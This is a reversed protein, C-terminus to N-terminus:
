KESKPELHAYIWFAVYIFGIAFSFALTTQIALKEQLSLLSYKLLSFPQVVIDWSNWRGYRGLYIGYSSVVLSCLMVLWAWLPKFTREILRHIKLMSYLGTMLGALAFSFSMLSDYWILHAPSAKLHILDTILYPANPFFLLWALLWGLLGLRSFGHKAQQIEALKALLLPMWALFLNWVLGLCDFTQTVLVRLSIMGLSVVTLLLVLFTKTKM